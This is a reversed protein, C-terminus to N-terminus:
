VCSTPSSNNCTFLLSSPLTGIPPDSTIMTPTVRVQTANTIPVDWVITCTGSADTVCNAYYTGGAPTVINIRVQVIAGALPAGSNTVTIPATVKWATSSSRTAVAGSGWAATSPPPPPATTTPIGATTTTVSPPTVSTSTTVAPILCSPPPPRKSVCSADNRVTETSEATLYDAAPISVFVVAAVVLSYEVLTAGRDRRSRHPRVSEFRRLFHDTLGM